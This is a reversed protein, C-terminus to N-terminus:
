QEMRARCSNAQLAGGARSWARSIIVWDKM